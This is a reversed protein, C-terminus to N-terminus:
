PQASGGAPASTPAFRLTGGAYVIPLEGKSPEYREATSLSQFFRSEQEMRVPSCMMRTSGLPHIHLRDGTLTYNAFYRNCGGSGSLRGAQEGAASFTLTAPVETSAEIVGIDTEFSILTWASGALEMKAEEIM